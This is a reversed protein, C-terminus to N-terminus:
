ADRKSLKLKSSSSSSSSSARRLLSAGGSGDLVALVLTSLLLVAPRGALPALAPPLGVQRLPADGKPRALDPLVAASWVRLLKRCSSTFSNLLLAALLVM